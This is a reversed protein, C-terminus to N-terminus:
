QISNNLYFKAQKFFSSFYKRIEEGTFQSISIRIKDFAGVENLNTQTSRWSDYLRKKFTNFSLEVPALQPSYSPLFLYSMKSEKIHLATLKSRHSPWNDLLFVIKKDRFTPTRSIWDEIIIMYQYFISSNVTNQVMSWFYAGNSFICLIISISGKFPLTKLEINSGRKCWSYSDGSKYNVWWEDVNGIIMSNELLKAFKISFLSRTLSLKEFDINSPRKSM